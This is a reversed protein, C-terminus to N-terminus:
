AKLYDYAIEAYHESYDCEMYFADGLSVPQLPSLDIFPSPSLALTGKGRSFYHIVLDKTTKSCDILQKIAPGPGDARPIVKLRWAPSLPPMASSPAAQETITSLRMVPVDGVSGETLMSREVQRVSVGAYIKPTGYIERGAAIGAPGNHLVHSTYYGTQERFKCKLVLFAEQFPGYNSCFPIDIGGAVCTGDPHPELPEPLYQGAADPRATFFLFHFKVNRYVAPLAPYFPADAPISWGDDHGLSM